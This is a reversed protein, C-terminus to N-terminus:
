VTLTWKAVLIHAPTQVYGSGDGALVSGAPPTTTLGTGGNSTALTGAMTMTGSSTIPGGSFTLGTTGGSTDVSTVATISGGTLVGGTFTLGAYTGSQGFDTSNIVIRSNAGTLNLQTRDNVGDYSLAVSTVANPNPFGPIGPGSPYYALFLNGASHHIQWCQANAGNGRQTTGLFLSGCALPISSVTDLGDSAPDWKGILVGPNLFGSITDWAVIAPRTTDTLDGEDLVLGKVAKNGLGLQQDVLSVTGQTTDSAANLGVQPATLTGALYFGEAEDFKITTASPAVPSGDLAQVRIGSICTSSVKAQGTGPQTVVFGAAQDFELSLIDTYSPSGDSEKVTLTGASPAAFEYVLDGDQIGRVRAMVLTGTAVSTDNIEYLPQNTGDGTRGGEADLYDTGTPDLIKEKWSYVYPASGTVGTIEVVFPANFVGQSVGGGDLEIPM